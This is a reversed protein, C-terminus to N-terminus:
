VEAKRLAERVSSADDGDRAALAARANQLSKEIGETLPHVGGLVRRAIRETEKLMTVAERLDDLTKPYIRSTWMILKIACEFVFFAQQAVFSGSTPTSEFVHLLRQGHFNFLHYHVINVFRIAVPGYNVDTHLPLTM